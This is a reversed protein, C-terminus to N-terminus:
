CEVRRRYARDLDGLITVTGKMCGRFPGVPQEVPVLRAYPKGRKTIVVANRKKDHIEDILELCRAKFEAAGVTLTRKKM